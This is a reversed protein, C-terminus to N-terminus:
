RILKRLKDYFVGLNYNLLYLNIRIRGNYNYYKNIEDRIYTNSKNNDILMKYKEYINRRVPNDNKCILFKSEFLHKFCIFEFYHKNEKYLGETILSEKITKLAEGVELVKEDIEGKTISGVRQYYNYYAENLYTAKPKKTFITGILALDEGYSIASPFEIKNELIFNRRILKSWVSPIIKAKLFNMINIEEDNLIDIISKVEKKDIDTTEFFNYIVMDCKTKEIQKVLKEICELELWDDGDIFLIYDGTSKKFGVERTKVLGKNEQNIIIKNERDKLSREIIKKTEDTSGDNVVIIEINKYTQNLVSKLCREIYNEINYAAIIISIKM